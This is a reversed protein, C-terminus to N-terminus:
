GDGGVSLPQDIAVDWLLAILFAIRVIRAVM